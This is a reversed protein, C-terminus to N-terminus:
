VRAHCFLISQALGCFMSINQPSLFGLSTAAVNEVGSSMRTLVARNSANSWRPMTLASKGVSMRKSTSCNAPGPRQDSSDGIQRGRIRAAPLERHIPSPEQQPSKHDPLDSGPCERRRARRRLYRLDVPAFSEAGVLVQRDLCPATLSLFSELRQVPRPSAATGALDAFLEDAAEVFIIIMVM